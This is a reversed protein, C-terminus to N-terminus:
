YNCQYLICVLYIYTVLILNAKSIEYYAAPVRRVQITRIVYVKVTTYNYVARAFKFIIHICM